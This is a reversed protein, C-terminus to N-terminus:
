LYRRHRAILAAWAPNEHMAVGAAERHEFLDAARLWIAALLDHPIAVHGAQITVRVPWPVNALQPRDQVLWRVRPRMGVGAELMYASPALTQPDGAADDYAIAVARVPEVPLVIVDSWGALQLQWTQAGICKGLKGDPGDLEQVAASLYVAVLQDEALDLVRMHAKADEVPLASPAVTRTLIV